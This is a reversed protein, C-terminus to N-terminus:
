SGTGMLDIAPKLLRRLERSIRRENEEVKKWDVPVGYRAEFDKRLTVDKIARRGDCFRTFYALSVVSEFGCDRSWDKVLVREALRAKSPMVILPLNADDDLTQISIGFSPVTESTTVFEFQNFPRRRALDLQAVQMNGGPTTQKIKYNRDKYRLVEEAKATKGYFSRLDLLMSGGAEKQETRKFQFDLHFNEGNLAVNWEAFCFEYYAVYNDISNYVLMKGGAQFVIPTDDSGDMLCSAYQGPAQYLGFFKLHLWEGEKSFGKIRISRYDGDNSKIVPVLKALQEATQEEEGATSASGLCLVCGVVLLAIKPRSM